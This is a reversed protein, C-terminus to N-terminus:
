IDEIYIHYVNLHTKRYKGITDKIELEVKLEVDHKPISVLYIEAINKRFNLNFHKDDFQVLRYNTYSQFKLAHM